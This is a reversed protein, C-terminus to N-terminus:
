WAAITGDTRPETGGCLIGDDNRWIIEGRGFNTTENATKIEHGLRMLKLALNNDFHPEVEITKGGVWQWRPKDLAEQPNSNDIITSLMVQLHAQPQMFGGMIGFPGVPVGDKMLFGPIITHYPKKGGELCNDHNPDLNFNAGRNHLSIGTEPVVVGSGFGMYNSQIYSIMNGEEDAAALYVTGGKIPDGPEPMLARETIMAARTAAYEESLLQEVTAKMHRPDTVYKQADVFALKMAEIQRHISECSNLETLDCYKLINLAMLVSIGHGNPPIEFVDYGKFNTSIPEVFETKFEALDDLELYGGNEKMFDVIKVALPGKYLSEAKTRAIEELTNAHYPLQVFDGPGLPKGNPAFTDFWSQFVSDKKLEKEFNKHARQWLKGVNPQIVFGQRAYQIAPAMVDELDLSGFREVLAAWGAPAGPVNVPTVGYDPMKTYGKERLAQASIRKPAAGSSNMGYLKGKYWLIAFSDSGIGNGSPEVATLTAAAAVAADIANGGMKLVELGAQAAMPNGTAVMGKKSYVVNRRSPHAYALPDFKFDM